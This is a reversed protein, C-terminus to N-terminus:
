TIIRRERSTRLDINTGVRTGQLNQHVRYHRRPLSFSIAVHPRKVHNGHRTSVRTTRRHTWVANSEMRVAWVQDYLGDKRQSGRTDGQALIRLAPRAHQLHWIGEAHGLRRRHQSDSVLGKEHNREAWPLRRLIKTHWRAKSSRSSPIGVAIPVKRNDRRQAYRRTKTGFIQGRWADDQVASKQHTSCRGDRNQVQTSQGETATKTNKIFLEKYRQLLCELLHKEKDDIASDETAMTAEIEPDHVYTMDDLLKTMRVGKDLELQDIKNIEAQTLKIVNGIVTNSPLFKDENTFNAIRVDAFGRDIDVAARELRAGGRLNRPGNADVIGTYSLRKPTKVEINTIRRAEIITSDCTYIPAPPYNKRLENKTICTVRRTNGNPCTIRLERKPIDIVIDLAEIADVGLIPKDAGRVVFFEIVRGNGGIIVELDLKGTVQLGTGDPGKLRTTSPKLQRGFIHVHKAPFITRGAGSDVLALMQHARGNSSQFTVLTKLSTHSAEKPSSVRVQAITDPDQDYFRDEKLTNIDHRNGNQSHRRRFHRPKGRSALGSFNKWRPKYVDNRRYGRRRNQFRRRRQNKQREVSAKYERCDRKLHGPRGCFYCNGYQRRRTDDDIADVRSVAKGIKHKKHEAEAKIIDNHYFARNVADRFTSPNYDMIKSYLKTGILGDKFKRLKERDTDMYADRSLTKIKKVYEELELGEITLKALERQKIIIDSKSVYTNSLEEILDRARLDALPTERDDIIDKAEGVLKSILVLVYEHENWVEHEALIKFRRLWKDITVKDKKKDGHFFQISDRIMKAVSNKNVKTFRRAHAPPEFDDSDDDDNVEVDDISLVDDDHGLLKEKHESGDSSSSGSEPKSNESHKDDDTIGANADENGEFQYGRTEGYLHNNTGNSYRRDTYPYRGAAGIEPQSLDSNSSTSTTPPPPRRRPRPRHLRVPPLEETRDSIYSDVSEDDDDQTDAFSERARAIMQDLEAKTKIRSLADEFAAQDSVERQAQQCDRMWASAESPFVRQREPENRSTRNKDREKWSNTSSKRRFDSGTHIDDDKLYGRGPVWHAPLFQAIDIDGLINDNYTSHMRGKKLNQHNKNDM